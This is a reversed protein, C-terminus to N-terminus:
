GLGFVEKKLILVGLLCGKLPALCIDEVDLWRVAAEIRSLFHGNLDVKIWCFDSLVTDFVCERACCWAHRGKDFGERLNERSPSRCATFTFPLDSIHGICSSIRYKVQAWPEVTALLRETDFGVSALHVPISASNEFAAHDEFFCSM